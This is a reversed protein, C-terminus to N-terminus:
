KIIANALAGFDEPALGRVRKNGLPLSDAIKVVDQKTANRGQKLYTLAANRVTRNRRTFLVQLLRQFAAENGPLSPRQKKPKLCIIVSDIKPHPYFMSKPIEDLLEVQAHYYTFVTLWGYDESGVAAMLRHAFEKQFVLVACDFDRQFLWALLRSSIQYPPISVIKNFSPLTISLVNGEIIKVNSACGLQERLISVLRADVEVALVEKCKESMFRTLFGLGAGIELVTDDCDLSAYHAMKQFVQSEVMFNQGLAKKPEIRHRRLLSKTEELLSM